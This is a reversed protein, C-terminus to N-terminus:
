EKNFSRRKRACSTCKVCTSRVFILPFLLFTYIISCHKGGQRHTSLLTIAIIGENVLIPYKNSRAILATLIQTCQETLVISVAKERKKQTDESLVKGRELLWLSKVVNM